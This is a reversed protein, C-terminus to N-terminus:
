WQYAVKLNVARGAGMFCGGGMTEDYCSAVHRKDTLNTVNLQVRAGKLSPVQRGLDVVIAGELARQFAHAM